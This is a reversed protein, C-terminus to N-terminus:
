VQGRDKFLPDTLPSGVLMLLGAGAAVVGCVIWWASVYMIGLVLMAIAWVPLALSILLRM